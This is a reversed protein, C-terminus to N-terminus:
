RAPPADILWVDGDRIEFPIATLSRGPCPGAVCKGDEITFRAGHTSCQLHTGDRDFFRDPMWNLPTGAHPCRNRYLYLTGHRRVAFLADDGYDGFGKCGNEPIDDLACLRHM